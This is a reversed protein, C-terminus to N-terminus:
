GFLHAYPMCLLWAMLRRVMLWLSGADFCLARASQLAFILVACHVGLALSAVLCSSPQGPRSLGKVCARQVARRMSACARWLSLALSLVAFRIFWCCLACPSSRWYGCCTPSGKPNAINEHKGTAARLRCHMRSASSGIDYGREGKDKGVWPLRDGVVRQPVTM